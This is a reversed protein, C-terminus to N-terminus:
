FKYGVTAQFNRPLEPLVIQSGFLNPFNARFYTEDTLNKGTLNFSWDGVQYNVGVNLLTYSPLRVAQSFGSFTSDAKVISGSVALGNEFDYTASVTYVNEPIGAKRADSESVAAPIGVVAGGYILSPDVQPIDGAGFFSFRGGNDLTNLNTVTVNTYGATLVLSDTAVWRIEGELGETLDASNTVISQASFDVREQEYASIAFYLSDNLFSGKIGIETLTSSDFAEGDLINDVTIEAGQGAIVTSQESLTVYPVLGVPSDYSLSVTWSTGSFTDSASADPEGGLILDGPTNSEIDISDYRLGILASLGNEFSFDGLAAIGLNLYDGVSYTTFDDNIRTALLRADLSTSPGTLDRRDFYENIFDDGHEFDTYRLSPSLQFSSTLGDSELVKSFVLKNEFVFSDHFQSFGYANENLNEYSDFFLQNKIEWGSDTNYITDFYLTISENELTDDEAVLVQSGDLTTTGVNVLAQEPSLDSASVFEPRFIFPNVNVAFYEQHSIFGDGDNDLPQASGTLYTGDDVLDQTLRNWGAVQNGEFNHYMGGFQFRLKDSVDTDFSAQVITQDTSTNNYYSGSDEVEAYVYYGTNDSIPGGIEATVVKKDWSGTTASFRGETEQIYEGSEARASKPNFNLYGGIKAPGYIPSAPGRVIDIRDSAGIPTPYNGPNDLRRVGRFYTEGPTGRVDLSGAVGFFSQTFTGPAFTILEDIDTVNFRELQENSITSASRPTQLLSKGFGFIEVDEGPLSGLSGTVVVEELDSENEQGIALQPAGLLIFLSVATMTHYGSSMKKKM